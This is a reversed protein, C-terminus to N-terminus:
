CPLPLTDEPLEADEEPYVIEFDLNQPKDWVFNPNIPLAPLNELYRGSLEYPRISPAAGLPGSIDDTSVEVHDIWVSRAGSQVIGYYIIEADLPVYLVLRPNGWAAGWMAIPAKAPEFRDPALQPTGTSGDWSRLFATVSGGPMARLYPRFVIRKGRYPAARIAQWLVNRQAHRVQLRQEMEDGVPEFHLQLSREGNWMFASDSRAANGTNREHTSMMWPLGPYFTRFCWYPVGAVSEKPRERKPERPAKDPADANGWPQLGAPEPRRSDGIVQAQDPKVISASTRSATPTMEIKPVSINWGGWNSVLSTLVALLAILATAAFFGTRRKM